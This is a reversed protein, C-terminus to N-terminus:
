ETCPVAADAPIEDYQSYIWMIFALLIAWSVPPESATLHGKDVETLFDHLEPVRQTIAYITFWHQFRWAFSM